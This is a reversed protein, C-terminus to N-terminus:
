DLGAGRSCGSPDLVCNKDTNYARKTSVEYDQGDTEIIIDGQFVSLHDRVSNTIRDESNGFSTLITRYVNGAQLRQLASNRPHEHDNRNGASIVAINPELDAVFRTASGNDAGHHNVHLVDVTRDDAIIAQAVVEEVRANEAGSERGILDGSILFDFDDYTVLFSLSRENPTNVNAVQDDGGRVYGNAAYTTMVADNGLDIEFSDVSTQDNLTHRTGMSDAMANYKRAAQSGHSDFLASGYDVWNDVKLDDCNGIEDPDPSFDEEGDLWDEDGDNDDDGQCGVAGDFGLLMSTGHFRGTIVGGIHDADSHTMILYDLKDVGYKNLVARLINGGDRNGIDGADVLVQIRREDDLAPGQILTGDGQGVRINVIRLPDHANAYSTSIFLLIISLIYRM